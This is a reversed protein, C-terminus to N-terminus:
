TVKRYIERTITADYQADHLEGPAFEIGLAAAVDGQKMSPLTHRKEMLHNGALVMVCIAPTWFWSGYYNDGLKRFWARLMEDDFKANYGLFFMKEHKKYPSVFGSFVKRLAAHAETAVPYAMIEERTKGQTELAAPEIEDTDFPRCKLDFYEERDPAEIIGAIQTIGHRNPDLGTTETDIFCRIINM